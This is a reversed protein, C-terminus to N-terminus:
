HDASPRRFLAIFMSDAKHVIGNILQQQICELGTDALLRSVVAENEQEFVSCTVYALIGGQAVHAAALAAIPYQLAEYQQLHEEKFFHFQEPTRAWTGSGSCPVDCLVLDFLQNGIRSRVSAPDAGNVVMTKVKDLHYLRFRMKLNYLITERIDSALLRFPSLKDKLLISKGGAGSCVDWVEAPHVPMNILPQMSAQSAWDQVVYTDEPLLTDMVQGNALMICDGTHNGPMEMMEFPVGQQRLLGLVHDRDKRIRIFLQPQQWMSQLWSTVSIGNSLPVRFVSGTEPPSFQHRAVAIASELMKGLFVNHSACLIYGAAVIDTVRSLEPYFSRCRYFIFVAESLAKRDRSGLKPYSRFDNKLYVALPLSGEYAAVIRELHDEFFSMIYFFGITIILFFLTHIIRSYIFETHM